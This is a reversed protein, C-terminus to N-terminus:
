NKPYKNLDIHFYFILYRLRKKNLNLNLSLHFLTTPVQYIHDKIGYNMISSQAMLKSQM